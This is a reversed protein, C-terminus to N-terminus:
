RLAMIRWMQKAYDLIVKPAKEFGPNFKYAGDSYIFNGRSDSGIITKSKGKMINTEIGEFMVINIDAPNLKNKCHTKYALWVENIQDKDLDTVIISDHIFKVEGKFPCDWISDHIIQITQNKGQIFISHTISLDADKGQKQHKFKSNLYLGSETIAINHIGAKDTWTKVTNGSQNNQIQQSYVSYSFLLLLYLFQLKM